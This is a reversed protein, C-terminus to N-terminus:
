MLVLSYDADWLLRCEKLAHAFVQQVAITVCFLLLYNAFLPQWGPM